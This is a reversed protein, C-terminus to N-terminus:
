LFGTTELRPHISLIVITRVTQQDFTNDDDDNNYTMRVVILTM